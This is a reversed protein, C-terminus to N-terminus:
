HRRQFLRQLPPGAVEVIRRRSTAILLVVFAFVALTVSSKRIGGIFEDTVAEVVDVSKAAVLRSTDDFSGGTQVAADARVREFAGDALGEYVPWSLISVVAAALHLVLSAWAVRGSLTKGLLPGVIVLLVPTTM